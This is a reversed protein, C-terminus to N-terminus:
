VLIPALQKIDRQVNNFIPLETFNQLERIGLPSSSCIGSIADASLDFRDKLIRLGGIVGFADHATFILKHIRSRVDDCKLLMETERQLIGDAFEVVWFNRPNNAYKLDLTNFINLLDPKDLMYTSPYGLYTFDTVPHAGSDEMHLIDKLSATGTVKSARVKYGLTTLAWCCAAASLSKGSNMSTGVILIMKSRNPDKNQRKPFVRCIDRTNLVKGNKDVVYGEVIVRTPDKINANKCRMVGIVGSRSLMDINGPLEDPILGEYYDPAYRNGLVFVARSGDNIAHIRGRKNELSSHQGIYCVTGYVLDGIEPKKDLMAYYKIGSRTATYAASPLLYGEKIKKMFVIGRKRIAFRTSIELLVSGCDSVRTLASIIYSVELIAVIKKKSFCPFSHHKYFGKFAWAVFYM